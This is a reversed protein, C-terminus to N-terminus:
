LSDEFFHASTPIFFRDNRLIPPDILQGCFQAYGTKGEVLELPSFILVDQDSTLDIGRIVATPTEISDTFAFMERSATDHFHQRVLPLRFYPIHEADLTEKEAMYFFSGHDVSTLLVDEGAPCFGAKAAPKELPHLRILPLGALVAGLLFAGTIYNFSAQLAPVNRESAPRHFVPIKEAASQLFLGTICAPVWMSVAYLRLYNTSFPVAACESLLIGIASVLLASYRTSKRKRILILFGAAWLLMMLYRVPVQLRDPNGNIYSFAGYYPSRILSDYFITRLSILINEPHEKLVPVCLGTLDKLVNESRNLATMEPLAVVDGWSKGGLCLGYVMEAAQRNPISQGGSVIRQATSNLAFGSLMLILAVASWLFRGKKGKMFIFFYWLGLAPFLFMAAPRANLGISLILFGPLIYRQKETRIGDLILRCSLLGCLFGYQETMYTGLRTRIYGFLITFFLASCVAGFTRNVSSFASLLLLATLICLFIQLAFYNNHTFFLFVSYFVLSIPRLAAAQEMAGGYLFRQTNLQMTFADSWPVVGGLAYQDSIGSNILGSYPLLVAAFLLGSLVTRILRNSSLACLLAALFLLPFVYLTSRFFFGIQRPIPHILILRCAAACIVAFLLGYLLQNKLTRKNDKDM